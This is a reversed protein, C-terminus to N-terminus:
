RGLVFSPNIGQEESKRALWKELQKRSALPVRRFRLGTRGEADSWAIEAEATIEGAGPLEFRLEILMSTLLPEPCRLLIGGESVNTSSCRLGRVAGFSLFVPVEVEYRFYRRRENLMFGQAARLSRVARDPVIPKDLVFHAGLDFAQHITTLRNVLAFAITRKNSAASRVSQLVERGRHMDDCDVFIADFKRSRLLGLAEDPGTSVEVAVNMAELLRRMAPVAEPDRCVLLAQLAM